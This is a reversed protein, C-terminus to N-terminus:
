HALDNLFMIELFVNICSRLNDLADVALLSELFVLADEWEFLQQAEGGYNKHEAEKNHYVIGNEVL